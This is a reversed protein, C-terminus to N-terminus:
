STPDPYTLLRTIPERGHESNARDVGQVTIALTGNELKAIWGKARLYWLHFELHERPCGSLRELEFEGIGPDNINQRRKVYLMSLLKEQVVVDREIGKTDSAEEVLKWRVGLHDRHQIDYQARKVPDKLTNHAEVLESFRALDGTSQNDPHYRLALFRFVREITESNANPSIELIEYYDTFM